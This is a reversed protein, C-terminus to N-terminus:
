KLATAEISDEVQNLLAQLAKQRNERIAQATAAKPQVERTTFAPIQRVPTETAPVRKTVVPASPQKDRMAQLPAVRGYSHLHDIYYKQSLPSLIVGSSSSAHIMKGNGVYIGVHGVSQSSRGTFFILDGALLQDRSIPSCYEQQKASNRPLKINLAKLYVQLVFGSCDVGETTNGGYLYPTGLWTGAESLLRSSSADLGEPLVFPASSSPRPATGKKVGTNDTSPVRHATHQTTGCSVLLWTASAVIILRIIISAHTSM